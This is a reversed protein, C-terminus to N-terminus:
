QKRHWRYLEGSIKLLKMNLALTLVLYGVIKLFSDIKQPKNAKLDKLKADLSDLKEYDLCADSAWTGTCEDSKDANIAEAIRREIASINQAYVREVPESASLLGGIAAIAYIYELYKYFFPSIRDQYTRAIFHSCIMGVFFYGFITPLAIVNYSAKAILLITLALYALLVWIHSRRVGWRNSATTVLLGALFALFPVVFLFFLISTPLVWDIPDNDGYMARAYSLPQEIIDPLIYITLIFGLILSIPIWIVIGLFLLIRKKRMLKMNVM